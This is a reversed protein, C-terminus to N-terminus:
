NSPQELLKKYVSNKKGYYERISEEIVMGRTAGNDHMIQNVVDLVRQDLTLTLGVRRVAGLPRGPRRKPKTETPKTRPRGPKRKEVHREMAAAEAADQEPKKNLIERMTYLKGGVKKMLDMPNKRAQRISESVPPRRKSM